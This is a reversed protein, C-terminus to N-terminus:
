GDEDDSEEVQPGEVGTEAERGRGSRVMALLAEVSADHAEKIQRLRRRTEQVAAVVAIVFSAASVLLMIKALLAM